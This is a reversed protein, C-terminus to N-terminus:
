FSAIDQGQQIDSVRTRLPSMVFVRLICRQEEPLRQKVQGPCLATDDQCRVALALYRFFLQLLPVAHEYGVQEIGQFPCGGIRAGPADRKTGKVIIKIFQHVAILRM